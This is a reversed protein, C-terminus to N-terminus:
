GAGSLRYVTFAVGFLMLFWGFAHRLSPGAIHRALQGGILSGPLM